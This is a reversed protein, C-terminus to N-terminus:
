AEVLYGVKSPGIDIQFPPHQEDSVCIAKGVLATPITYYRHIIQETGHQRAFFSLIFINKRKTM